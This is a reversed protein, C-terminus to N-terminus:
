GSPEYTDIRISINIIKLCCNILKKGPELITKSSSIGSVMKGYICNQRLTRFHGVHGSAMNPLLFARHVATLNSWLRAGVGDETGYGIADEHRTV